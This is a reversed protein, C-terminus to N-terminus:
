PRTQPAFLTLYAKYVDRVGGGILMRGGMFVDLCALCASSFDALRRPHLVDRKNKDLDVRGDAAEM